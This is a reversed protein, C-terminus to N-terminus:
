SKSFLHQFCDIQIKQPTNYHYVHWASRGISYLCVLQKFPTINKPSEFNPTLKMKKNQLDNENANIINLCVNLHM